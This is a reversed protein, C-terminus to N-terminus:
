AREHISLRVAAPKLGLLGCCLEFSIISETRGNVWNYAEIRRRLPGASVDNLAQMLVAAALNKWGQSHWSDKM